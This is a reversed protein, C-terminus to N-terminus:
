SKERWFVSKQMFVDSLIANEVTQCVEFVLGVVVLNITM